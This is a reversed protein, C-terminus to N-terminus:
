SAPPKAAQRMIRGAGSAQMWTKESSLRWLVGLPILVYLAGLVIFTWAVVRGGPFIANLLLGLGVHALVFGGALLGAGLAAAVGGLFLKRAARVGKVYGIAAELRVWDLSTKRYGQWLWLAAGAWVTRM